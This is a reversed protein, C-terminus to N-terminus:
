EVIRCLTPRNRPIRFYLAIDEPLNTTVNGIKDMPLGHFHIAASTSFKAPKLWKSWRFFRYGRPCEKVDLGGSSNGDWSTLEWGIAFRENHWDAVNVEFRKLMRAFSVDDAWCGQMFETINEAFMRVGRNSILFGGGGHPIIEGTRMTGYTGYAMLLKKMPDGLRELDRIVSLMNSVNVFTDHTGRFYWRTEPESRIFHLWTEATRRCLGADMYSESDEPLVVFKKGNVEFRQEAVYYVHMNTINELQFEWLKGRLDAYPFKQGSGALVYFAVPRGGVKTLQCDPGTMQTYLGIHFGAVYGFLLMLFWFCILKIEM